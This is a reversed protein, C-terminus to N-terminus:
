AGAKKLPFDIGFKKIIRSVVTHGVELALATKYRSLGADRLSIIGEALKAERDGEDPKPTHKGRVAQVFSFGNRKTCGM